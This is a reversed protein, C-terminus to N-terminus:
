QPPSKDLVPGIERLGPPMFDKLGSVDMGEPDITMDKVAKNFIILSSKWKKIPAQRIQSKLFRQNLGRSIIEAQKKLYEIEKKDIKDFFSNKLIERKYMLIFRFFSSDIKVTDKGIYTSGMMEIFDHMFRNNVLLSNMFGKQKSIDKCARAQHIFSTILKALIRPTQSLCDIFQILQAPTPQEDVSQIIPLLKKGLDIMDNNVAEYEKIEAELSNALDKKLNEKEEKKKQFEQITQKLSVVPSALATLFQFVVSSM